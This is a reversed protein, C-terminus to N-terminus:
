PATDQPPPLFDAQFLGALSNQPPLMGREIMLRHVGQAAVEFRSGSHLAYRNGGLDPVTVGALAHRVDAATVGQHAAIRYAADDRNQNIYARMEFHKQIAQRLAAKRGALRDTRMALVDFITDPMQRTDFLREAGDAVLQSATPEFSVIADVRGDRWASLHDQVPLEVPTVAQRTLGARALVEGFILAGVASAEYGIRKGALDGLHQIGHRVLLVDAGSSSDFILVAALPTGAARAALMEDLTLMGADVTGAKLAALTDAAHAGHQLTVSPPLEGLDEALCLSEYGVWPHTAIRLTQNQPLCGALAGAVVVAALARLYRFSHPM